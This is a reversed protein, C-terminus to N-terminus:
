GDADLLLLSTKGLRQILTQGLESRQGGALLLLNDILDDIVAFAHNVRDLELSPSSFPHNAASVVGNRRVVLQLLVKFFPLQLLFLRHPLVERLVLVDVFALHCHLIAFNALFGFELGDDVRVRDVNLAELVTGSDERFLRRKTLRVQVLITTTVRDSRENKSLYQLLTRQGVHGAFSELQLQGLTHAFRLPLLTQLTM